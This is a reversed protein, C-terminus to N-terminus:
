SLYRKPEPGRYGHHDLLDAFKCFQHGTSVMIVEQNCWAGEELHPHFVALVEYKGTGEMVTKFKTLAGALTKGEELEGTVCFPEEILRKFPEFVDAAHMFRDQIIPCLIAILTVKKSQVAATSM